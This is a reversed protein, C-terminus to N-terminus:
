DDMSYVEGASVSQATMKTQLDGGCRPCTTERFEPLTKLPSGSGQFQVEEPLVVPLDEEPVPM